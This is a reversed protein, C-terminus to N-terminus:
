GAAATEPHNRLLYEAGSKVGLVERHVASLEKILWAINMVDHMDISWNENDSAICLVEGLSIMTSTLMESANSAAKKATEPDGHQFSDIILDKLGLAQYGQNAM